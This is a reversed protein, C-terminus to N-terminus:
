LLAPSLPKVRSGWVRGRGGKRGWESGGGGEGAWAKGGTAAREKVWVGGGGGEGM